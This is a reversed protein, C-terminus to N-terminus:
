SFDLFKGSAPSMDRGIPDHSFYSQQERGPQENRSNDAAISSSIRATGLDEEKLWASVTTPAAVTLRNIAAKM